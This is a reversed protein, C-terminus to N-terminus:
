VAVKTEEEAKKAAEAQEAKVFAETNAPAPKEPEKVPEKVPDTKDTEVPEDVKEPEAAPTPDHAIKFRGTVFLTQATADDVPVSKGSTYVVGERNFVRGKILIAQPM